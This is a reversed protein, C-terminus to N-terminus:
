EIGLWLTYSIPKNTPNDVYIAWEGSANLTQRVEVNPKITNKNFGINIKGTKDTIKFWLTQGKRAKFLFTKSVGPAITQELTTDTAGKAFKIQEEEFVPEDASPEAPAAANGSDGEIADDLSIFIRFSMAKNSPNSVSLTYDKSQEIEMTLGKDEDLGEEISYKGLDVVGERTDEIYTIKIKQGKNLYFVFSKSSNKAVRQEWVISNGEKAFDIREATQASAVVSLLLIGLLVTFSRMTSRM